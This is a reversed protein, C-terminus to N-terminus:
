FLKPSACDSRKSVTIESIHPASSSRSGGTAEALENESLEVKSIHAEGKDWESRQKTMVTAGGSKIATM